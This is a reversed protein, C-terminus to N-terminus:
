SIETGAAVDCGSFVSWDVAKTVIQSAKIAVDHNASHGLVDVMHTPHVIDDGFRHLFVDSKGDVEPSRILVIYNVRPQNHFLVSLRIFRKTYPSM